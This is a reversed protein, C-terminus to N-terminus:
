INKNDGSKFGYMNYLCGLMFNKIQPQVTYVRKIADECGEISYATVCNKINDYAILENLKYKFDPNYNM